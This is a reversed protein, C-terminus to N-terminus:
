RRSGRPVGRLGDYACERSCYKHPQARNLPRHFTEGCAGCTHACITLPKQPGSGHTKRYLIRSYCRRCLGRAQFPLEDSGCEACAELGKPGWSDGRKTRRASVRDPAHHQSHESATLLELNELRDDTKDGNVHHVQEDARLPRGLHQEMVYRYRYIRRGDSLRVRWRGLAANFSETVIIM